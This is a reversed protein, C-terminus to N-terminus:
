KDFFSNIYADFDVKSPDAPIKGFETGITPTFKEYFVTFKFRMRIAEELDADDPWIDKPLYNSTVTFTLHRPVLFGGKYEAIFSEYDAWLKILHYLPAGAHDLDQLVVNEQGNYLDWWKSQPKPYVTIKPFLTASYTTKGFRPKGYIWLGCPGPREFPVLSEYHSHIKLLNGWNCIQNRASVNEYKGAKVATLDGEWDVAARQAEAKPLPNKGREVPGKVRTDKKSCYKLVRPVDQRRLPKSWCGKGRWFKLGIREEFWLIAQVHLTGQAGRELQGLWFKPELKDVSAEWDDESPNNITVMWWRNTTSGDKIEQQM